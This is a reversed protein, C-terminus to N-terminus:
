DFFSGNKLTELNEMVFIIGLDTYLAHGCFDRNVFDLHDDIVEHKCIM